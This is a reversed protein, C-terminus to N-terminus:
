IIVEWKAFGLYTIKLGTWNYTAAGENEITESILERSYGTRKAIMRILKEKGVTKKM